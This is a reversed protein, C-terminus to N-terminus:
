EDEDLYNILASGQGMFDTIVQVTSIDDIDEIISIVAYKTVGHSETKVEDVKGIALGYPYVGSAGATIIMDGKEITTEEALIEFKAQGNEALTIDGSLIGLEKSDIEIAGVSSDPSLVTRVRASIPGVRTVIGVLGNPTIVPDYIDVGHLSGRDIMFSGYRDAPDRSIVFASTIEFDPYIEKIGYSTKYQENEDKIKEYDIIKQNLEANEAKLRENEELVDGYHVINDIFGSVGSSIRSGVYQFPTTVMELLNRPINALGDSSASYLMMGFLLAVILAIIKFKHTKFFELM